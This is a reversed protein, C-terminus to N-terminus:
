SSALKVKAQRAAKVAPRAALCTYIAGVILAYGHGVAIQSFYGVGLIAAEREFSFAFIKAEQCPVCHLWAPRLARV